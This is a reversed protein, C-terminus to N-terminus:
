STTARENLSEAESRLMTYQRAIFFRDSVPCVVHYLVGQGRRDCEFKVHVKGNAGRGGRPAWDAM